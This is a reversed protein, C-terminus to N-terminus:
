GDARTCFKSQNQVPRFELGNHSSYIRANIAEAMTRLASLPMARPLRLTVEVYETKQTTM